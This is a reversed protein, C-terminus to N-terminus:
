SGSQKGSNYFEQLKPLFQAATENKNSMSAMHSQLFDLFGPVPYDPYFSLTDNNVVRNFGETYSRTVPDTIKTVDGALPLGGLVGIKDQVESSLTIDIWDIALDRNQSKAPVGWLHGSSGMTMNAGPLTFFGWSFKADSKIRQFVSGNWILMGTKGSLFNVNAQEFTLGALNTGVYGKDIWDQFQQTGKRWPDTSFDVSGQLFMFDNIQQRNAYASVLSYWVWLQNFGQNTSASSAVPTVGAKLLNQMAIVFEAMTTPVSDIGAKKFLTKNYYFTVYEGINPIGFWDGSGAHGNQDYKAFSQMSGTVKKDWGYKTVEDNLSSLLGQAALQGGDANGKNFEVVDPVDKGSLVLKANKEFGSFSTTQFDVKVGPHKKEFLDVALKWGQGQPTTPDEYQLITFKTGSDGATTTKSSGCGTMGVAAAGLAGALLTRRTVSPSLHLKM